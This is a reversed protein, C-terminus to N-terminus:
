STRRKGLDDFCPYLCLKQCLYLSLACMTDYRMLSTTDWVHGLALAVSASGENKGFGLGGCPQSVRGAASHSHRQTRAAHPSLGRLCGFGPPHFKEPSTHSLRPALSM